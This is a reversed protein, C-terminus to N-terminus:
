FLNFSFPVSLIVQVDPADLTLGIGVSLNIYTKKSVAYSGGLFLTGANLFSGPVKEGSQKTKTTITHQYQTSLSFKESLAYAIGVSAQISDGPDVKGVGQSIDRKVNWFYNIGGFFVVPDSTKVATFGGSFGWHGNGTPLERLVTRGQIVETDLHYPSRGTTSKARVNLIIDPIYGKEKILHYYIAGEIDGLDQDKVTREFADTTGAAFTERDSRYIWPVKLEAELRSTIGYRATLAGQIIDRKLDSVGLEGIIIVDYITFGSISIRHRSLHSYQISPEIVLTGRPLLVGGVEVLIAEAAKERKETSPKEASATEASSVSAAFIFSILCLLLLFFRAM